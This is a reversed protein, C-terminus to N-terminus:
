RATGPTCRDSRTRRRVRRLSPRTEPRGNRMVRKSNRCMSTGSRKTSVRFRRGPRGPHDGVRSEWLDTRAPSGCVTGRTVIESCSRQLPDTAYGANSCSGYTAIFAMQPSDAALLALRRQKTLVSGLNPAKPMNGESPKTVM